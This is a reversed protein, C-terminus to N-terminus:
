DVGSVQSVVALFVFGALNVTYVYWTHCPGLVRCLLCRMHFFRQVVVVVVFLCYWTAM